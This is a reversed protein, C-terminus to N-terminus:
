SVGGYRQVHNRCQWYRNRSPRPHRADAQFSNGSRFPLPQLHVPRCPGTRSRISSKMQARSTSINSVWSWAPNFQSLWRGREGILHFMASRLETGQIALATPLLEYPIRLAARRMYALAEPLLEQHEGTLMSELLAALEVSCLSLTEPAAPEPPQPLSDTVKGAQRYLAWAGASLLLKREIEGSPLKETLTDVPTGTNTEINQQQATGILAATVIADMAGDEYYTITPISWYASPISTKEMGSARSISPIVGLSPFSVGITMTPLRFCLAEAIAFIGSNGRSEKTM